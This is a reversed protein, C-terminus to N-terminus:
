DSKPFLSEVYVRNEPIDKPKSERRRKPKQDVAEVVEWHAVNADILKQILTDMVEGLNSHVFVKVRLLLDGEEM